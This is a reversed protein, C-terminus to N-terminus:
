RTVDIEVDQVTSFIVGWWYIATDANLFRVDRVWSNAVARACCM